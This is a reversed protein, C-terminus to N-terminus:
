ILFDELRKGEDLARQIAKPKRGQGTWKQTQGEDDVYQYKPPRPERKKTETTIAGLLEAPDIGDAKLMEKYEELKRLKDENAARIAEEEARRDEVIKSFKTLSEELQELTLEKAAAKLSRANLLAKIIDSM